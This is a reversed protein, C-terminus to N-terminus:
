VRAPATLLGKEDDWGVGSSDLVERFADYKGKLYTYRNECQKYDKIGQPALEKAIANYVPRKWGGQAISGIAKAEKLAELFQKDM